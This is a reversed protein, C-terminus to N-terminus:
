ACAQTVMVLIQYRDLLSIFRLDKLATSVHNPGQNPNVRQQSLSDSILVRRGEVIPCPLKAKKILKMQLNLKVSYLMNLTTIFLQQLNPQKIILLLNIFNKTLSTSKYTLIIGFLTGLSASLLM